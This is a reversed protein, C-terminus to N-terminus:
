TTTTTTTTTVAPTITMEVVREEELRGAGLNLEYYIQTAYSKDPRESIKVKPQENLGLVVGDKEYFYCVGATAATTSIWTFGMWTNIEGRVLAKISNSDITNILPDRLMQNLDTPNIMVYRNDEPVDATDLLTKVDIIYDTDLVEGAVTAIKQGAPLAVTTGGDVGSFADGGMAAYVITDIKKGYSAVAAKLWPSTVNVVTKLQEDAALIRNDHKTAMTITRRSYGPDNEPTSVVGQAKDEMTWLGIREQTFKSGKVNLRMMVNGTMKSAKQRALLMINDSFEKAYINVASDAM